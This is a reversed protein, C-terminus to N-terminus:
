VCILINWTAHRMAASIPMWLGDPSDPMLLGAAKALAKGNDQAPHPGPKGLQNATLKGDLKGRYAATDARWAQSIRDRSSAPKAHDAYAVKVAGRQHLREAGAAGTPGPLLDPGTEQHGEQVAACDGRHCRQDRHDLEEVAVGIRRQDPEAVIAARQDGPLDARGLLGARRGAGSRIEEDSLADLGTAM